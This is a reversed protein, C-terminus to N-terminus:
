LNFIKKLCAWLKTKLNIDPEIEELSPSYLYSAEKYAQVQFAPFLLPLGFEDPSVGFLFVVKSKFFSIINAFGAQGYNQFNLIAIDGLNLNCAALLKTLFALQKDPIHVADEYKLIILINKKNQGLFKWTTGTKGAALQYNEADKIEVLSNKYLFSIDSPSLHLKNLNM